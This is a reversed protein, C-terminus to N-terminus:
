CLHADDDHGCVNETAPGYSEGGCRRCDWYLVRCEFLEARSNHWSRTAHLKYAIVKERGYLFHHDRSSRPRLYLPYRRPHTANSRPLTQTLREKKLRRYLSQSKSRVMLDPRLVSVASIGIGSKAIGYAAGMSSFIMAM